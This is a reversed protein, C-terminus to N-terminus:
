SPKGPADPRGSKDKALLVIGPLGGNDIAKDIREEFTTMKLIGKTLLKRYFNECLLAGLSFYAL